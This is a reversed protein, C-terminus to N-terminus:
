HDFELKKLQSQELAFEVFGGVLLLNIHSQPLPSKDAISPYIDACPPV